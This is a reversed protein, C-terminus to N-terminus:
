QVHLTRARQPLRSFMVLYYFYMCWTFMWFVGEPGTFTRYKQSCWYTIGALCVLFQLKQLRTLWYSGSKLWLEWYAYSVLYYYLYMWIHVFSNTMVFLGFVPHYHVKWVAWWGFAATLFHHTWHLTSPRRNKMMLIFTDVYEMPKTLGFLVCWFQFSASADGHWWSAAHIACGVFILASFATSWVNWAREFGKICSKTEVEFVSVNPGWLCDFVCSLYLTTSVFFMPAFTTVLPEGVTEWGYDAGIQSLM